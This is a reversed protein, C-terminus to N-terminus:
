ATASLKLIQQIKEDDRACAAKASSVKAIAEFIQDDIEALELKLPHLAEKTKRKSEEYEAEYKRCEEEWRHLEATMLSIDELIYDMCTGLPGTHQVLLQISARMKQLDTEGGSPGALGAKKELGTKRLRGLRIGSGVVAGEALKAEEENKPRVVAEQELQRAMIDKVLKSQPDDGASGKSEAHSMDEALRTEEPIAEDEDDQGDIIIGETKKAPATDKSQLEKAGDKVKPPRRRATTPRTSRKDGEEGDDNLKDDAATTPERQQVQERMDPSTMPPANQQKPAAREDVGKDDEAPRSAPAAGGGGGGGLEELVTRVAASSDPLNKAAVALLQLFHNTDQPDRGAVIKAPSAVVLTNLQLGVVKIIKELFNMKQAKDAVAASDTEDPGFLDAGFGTARVVEMVVDHLFRFPPKSLLKETLRPRTIVEGLLVQTTAETGDCREISAQNPRGARTGGRSKGREPAIMEMEAPIKAEMPIEKSSGGRGESDGGGPSKFDSKPTPGDFKSGSAENDINSKAEAAPFAGGSRLPRPGSGPEDGDLVRRVAEVNDYGSDSACEALAILFLNTCEPELGSVVKTARIDMPGGRCIGVLNFIKELYAIKAGKDGISASDLESGSYLGEGFGTASAVASVTDHLFRFPPKSLLKDSMKPKIILEGMRSKTQNILADLDEAM